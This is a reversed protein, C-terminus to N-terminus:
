LLIQVAIIMLSLLICIITKMKFPSEDLYIWTMIPFASYSLAYAYLRASWLSNFERVAFTWGYYFCFGAPIGFALVALISKNEWWKWVFQSNVQYWIIINGIFFLITSFILRKTFM